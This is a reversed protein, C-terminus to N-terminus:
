FRPAQRDLDFRRSRRMTGVLPCLKTSMIVQEVKQFGIDGMDAALAYIVGTAHVIQTLGISDDLSVNMGIVGGPQQVGEGPVKQDLVWLQLVALGEADISICRAIPQKMFRARHVIFPVQKVIREANPFQDRRLVAISGVASGSGLRREPKE